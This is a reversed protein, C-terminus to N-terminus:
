ITRLSRRVLGFVQVMEAGRDRRFEGPYALLLVRYVRESRSM